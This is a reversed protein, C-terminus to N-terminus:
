GKIADNIKNLIFQKIQDENNTRPITMLVKDEEEKDNEKYKFWVTLTRGGITILSRFRMDNQIKTNELEKDKSEKIQEQTPNPPLTTDQIQFITKTDPHGMGYIQISTEILTKM